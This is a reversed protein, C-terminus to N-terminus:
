RNPWAELIETYRQYACDIVTEWSTYLNQGAAAHIKEMKKRDSCADLLIRACDNADEQALFGDVGDTVGEAACSGRVLLSPVDCAAAEKVVLGSTDYTSPFLFVDTISYFVRLYERDYIPGTFIVQDQLGLQEAYKRIDELDYGGGILFARLAMGQQKMRYLTDLILRINKYWMMRGVFLFVFEEPRIGYKTRLADTAQLPAKGYPFDTGNEMVRFSGEYGINRLSEGCGESVAWVEDAANLNHRVFATATCVGLPIKRARKELDIEFKTHYTVIVPKRHKPNCRAAITSSIFPAHVHLLDFSKARLDRIASPSFPNGARYGIRKGVSFSSYRFVDFPFATDDAKPHDPTVVTVDCYKKQFVTAYNIVAQAVGDIYPPFSDNFLGIRLRREM